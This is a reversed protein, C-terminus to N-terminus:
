PRGATRNPDVLWQLLLEYRGMFITQLFVDHGSWRHFMELTVSPLGRFNVAQARDFAHHEGYVLHVRPTRPKSEYLPRLDIGPEANLKDVFNGFSPLLNTPAAFALIAEAELELAYRLAGYSGLSNGYCVVRSTGLTAIIQQLTRLTSEMEPSLSRIGQDYNHGEYDRLYIVHVGLQGFWRHILDIPMGLKRLRGCFALLVCSAGARPVVQVEKAGNDRFAAFSPDDCPSPLRELLNVITRFFSAGPFALALRPAVTRAVDICSNNLLGDLAMAWIKGDARRFDVEIGAAHTQCLYQTFEDPQRSRPFPVEGSQANTSRTTPYTIENSM